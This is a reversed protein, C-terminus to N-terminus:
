DKEVAFKRFAAGRDGYARFQDYSTCAPAMLVADGISLEAHRVMGTEDRHMERDKAGFVDKLFTIFADPDHVLFYPVVHHHGGPLKPTKMGCLLLVVAPASNYSRTM